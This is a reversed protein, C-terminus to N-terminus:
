SQSTSKMTIGIASAMTGNQLQITYKFFVSEMVSVTVNGPMNNIGLGNDHKIGAIIM